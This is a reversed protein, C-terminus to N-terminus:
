QKLLYCYFGQLSFLGKVWAMKSLFFQRCNFAFLSSVFCFSHALCLRRSMSFIFFFVSIGQLIESLYCYLRPSIACSWFLGILNLCDNVALNEIELLTYLVRHAFLHNLVNYLCKYIDCIKTSFLWCLTSVFGNSLHIIIRNGWTLVTSSFGQIIWELHFLYDKSECPLGRFNTFWNVYRPLLIEDVSLSTLMCMSFAHVAILQYNIM